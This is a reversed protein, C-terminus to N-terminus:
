VGVKMKNERKFEVLYGHTDCWDAIYSMAQSENFYSPIKDFYEEFEKISLHHIDGTSKDTIICIYPMMRAEFISQIGSNRRVLRDCVSQELTGHLAYNKIRGDQDKLLDILYQVDDESLSLVVM